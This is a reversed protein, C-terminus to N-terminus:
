ITHASVISAWKWGFIAFSIFPAYSLDKYFSCTFLLNVVHILSVIMEPSLPQHAPSCRNEQSLCPPVPVHEIQWTIDLQQEFASV